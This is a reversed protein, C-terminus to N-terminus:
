RRSVAQLAKAEGLIIALPDIELILFLELIISRSLSLDMIRVLYLDVYDTGLDKLTQDLALEVDAPDHETNWLKSTIHM